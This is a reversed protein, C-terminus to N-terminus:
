RLDFSPTFNLSVWGWQQLREAAENWAAPDVEGQREVHRVTPDFVSWGVHWSLVGDTKGTIWLDLENGLLVGFMADRFHHATAGWAKGKGFPAIHRLRLNTLGNSQTGVFFQDIWGYHKHNTGLFPQFAASSGDDTLLDLGVRWQHGDAGNIGADAVVMSATGGGDWQQLYAETAWWANSGVISRTTFGATLASPETESDQDFVLFTLTHREGVLARHYAMIRRTQNLEDWTLAATTNGKKPDDPRRNWRIGDLFRGPNSWNVAGVVREDDFKIEQSGVRVQMGGRANWAWWAESVGVTGQTQGAPGGFTRIDQAGFRFDFQNWGGNLTLRSRQITVLSANTGSAAAVKYGDRWESRARIQLDLILTTDQQAFLPATSLLLVSLAALTFRLPM